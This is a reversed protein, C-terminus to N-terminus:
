LYGPFRPVLRPILLPPPPPGSLLRALASPVRCPAPVAGLPHHSTPPVPLALPETPMQGLRIARAETERERLQAGPGGKRAVMRVATGQGWGAVREMKRELPRVGAM